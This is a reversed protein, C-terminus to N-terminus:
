PPKWPAQLTDQAKDGLYKVIIAISEERSNETRDLANLMIDRPPGMARDLNKRSTMTNQLDGYHTALSDFDEGPLLQALRVRVSEWTDTKFHEIRKLSGKEHGPLILSLDKRTSYLNLQNHRMEVLVLHLLGDRERAELSQNASERLLHTAIAGVSAGVGLSGIASVVPVWLPIGGGM